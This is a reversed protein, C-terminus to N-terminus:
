AALAGANDGRQRRVLASEILAGLNRPEADLVDRLLAEAEDLRHLALLERARELKIERSEPDLAAAADFAALAATRDGRRRDGRATQLLANVSQPNVVDM